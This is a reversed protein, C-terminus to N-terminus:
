LPVDLFFATVALYVASAVLDAALALRGHFFLIFAGTLITLMYYAGILTKQSSKTGLAAGAGPSRDIRKTTAASTM